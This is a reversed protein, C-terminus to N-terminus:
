DIEIKIQERNRHVTWHSFGISKALEAGERYRNAVFQTHHADSAFSINRGGMEYYRTLIEATPMFEGEFIKGNIELTKNRDIIKRLISEVVDRYESLPMSKDEYPCNKRVFGIHSITDYSYGCDISEDIKKLYLLFVDRKTRGEFYERHYCDLGNVIHVSNIVYDFLDLPMAKYDREAEKSYGLEIGLALFPFREKLKSIREIYSKVDLQKVFLYKYLKNYDRDCHDTFAMYKLGLEEGRLAMDLPTSKADFSFTTHTHTDIM